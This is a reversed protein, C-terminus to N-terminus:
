KNNDISNNNYSSSANKNSYTACGADGTYVKVRVPTKGSFEFKKEMNQWYNCTAYKKDKINFFAIGM